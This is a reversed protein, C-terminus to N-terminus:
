AAAHIIAEHVRLLERDFDNNATLAFGAREFPKVGEAHSIECVVGLKVVRKGGAFAAEFGTESNRGRM